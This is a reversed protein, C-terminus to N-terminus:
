GQGLWAHYEEIHRHWQGPPPYDREGSHSSKTTLLGQHRLWWEYSEGCGCQDFEARQEPTLESIHNTKMGCGGQEGGGLLDGGV